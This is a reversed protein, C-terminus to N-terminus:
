GREELKRAHGECFLQDPGHGNDNSCQLFKRCGCDYVPFACRSRIYQIKWKDGYTTREAEERTVPIEAM